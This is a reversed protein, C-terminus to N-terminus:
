NSVASTSQSQHCAQMFVSLIPHGTDAQSTQVWNCFAWCIDRFSAKRISNAITESHM